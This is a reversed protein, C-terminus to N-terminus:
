GRNPLMNNQALFRFLAQGAIAHAKENPHQNTPHVWLEPGKFESFEPLLDLVVIGRERAYSAVTMHVDAFPYGSSLNWLVPFIMLALEFGEQEALQAAEDLAGQVAIWGRSDPEFSRRYAKELELVQDRRQLTWAIRDALFSYRRIFKGGESVSDVNFLSHTGGGRADNLFFCIVVVDPEYGIGREGLLAVEHTTGLGMIGLNLVEFRSSSGADTLNRQLEALFTDKARVGTGFTFSDGLGLIRFEGATKLRSTEPGRFGLQNIRYTLTAGPDFYGRPNSPFHHVVEAGPRLLYPVGEIYSETRIDHPVPTINGRLPEGVFFRLVLEALALAFVAAAVALAFKKGLYKLAISGKNVSTFPPSASVWDCMVSGSEFEHSSAFAALVRGCAFCVVRSRLRFHANVRGPFTRLPIVLDSNPM